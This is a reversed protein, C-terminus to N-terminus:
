FILDIFINRNNFASNYKNYKNNTSLEINSFFHCIGADDKHMCRTWTLGSSLVTDLEFDFREVSIGVRLNLNDSSPIIM